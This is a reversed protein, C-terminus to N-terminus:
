NFTLGEKLSEAIGQFHWRGYRGLQYIGREKLTQVAAERWCSNPWQWTYAVDIWNSDVVEVEKIFQWDRLEKIVQKIYNNRKNRDPKEGGPYAREVYIGVRDDAKQNSKPLFSKDVNSYFGVRHFGSCSEPIYLWHDKPCRKGKVAGINLVLVSTYPDTKEEPRLGTLEIMKNLPLTSVLKNFRVSSKNALRLTKTETNIGAVRNKYYIKCNNALSAILADLGERPYLFTVNYGIPSTQERAGQIVKRIDVPSKYSDQPAIKEYLGATYLNNFPFFFVDCLTDGFNFKLWEKLTSVGTNPLSKIEDIVRDSIKKGLFRLNNQIPYPVYLEKKAFYVSSSRKYFKLSVFKNLFRKIKEDGGFIWHGGGIEFRYAGKHKQVPKLRNSKEPMMYYTSCIGGAIDQAELIPISKTIAVSLGTIGAGLILMSNKKIINEM